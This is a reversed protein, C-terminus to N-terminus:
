LLFSSLSSVDKDDMGGLQAHIIRKKNKERVPEPLLLFPRDDM